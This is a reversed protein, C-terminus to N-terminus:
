AAVKAVTPKAAAPQPAVVEYQGTRARRVEGADQLDSLLNHVQRESYGAAEKIQKPSSNGAKVAALVKHHGERLRQKAALRADAEFQAWSPFGSAGFLDLTGGGEAPQTAPASSAGTAAPKVAAAAAAVPMGARRAAIRRRAENLAEDALERRRLYTDGWANASGEDLSRWTIRAPWAKAMEDTLYYSRFPASRAGPVSNVLFAYGPLDPFKKPNVEVGFVEKVNPDKGKFILGNGTLLNSRIAESNESGAGGFADLTSQQSGLILAVGVKGGERAITAILYQAREWQPNERKSLVKHCEDIIGLMGPRDATPTFGRLEDVANEDQRLLMVLHMGELMALTQQHTRAPVDAHKMLLPSSAGGQGDAFLIVTPHSKSAALSLAISELTRSKGSGTGGQLYGGWLRNETYAKWTAVGEGDAFPGLRVQGTTSDFASPGPWLVAKKIPSRTVVTLLVTPEPETPHAELILEQDRMLGLGGRLNDMEAMVKGLHQKGRRLRLAYRVGAKITEPNTLYSGSLCDGEGGIYKKWLLAYESRVKSPTIGVPHTRWWYASLAYGLAMLVGVAGMSVGTVTVTTLWVGGVAVFALARRQAKVDFVRRRIRTAAVVAVVFAAGAVWTAVVQENGTAHVAVRAAGAALVLMGVAAHPVYHPNMGGKGARVLTRSRRVVTAPQPPLTGGTSTDPNTLTAVAPM